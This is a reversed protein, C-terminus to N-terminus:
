NNLWDDLHHELKKLADARHSIQNKEVQSCEALTKGKEPLYFLPDYGFGNEGRPVGAIEGDLRGEIVLSEKGPHALALSCHFHAQRENENKDALANLLKANNKADNKEEGAYRASYVGPQGYLADVVLGSDDALVLTDLKEAITEAKLLANENFTTGTEEVDEIDPFDLLTVIRYGKKNFLAEFEKAKGKNKTAILITKREDM